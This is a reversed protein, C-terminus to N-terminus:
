KGNLVTEVKRLNSASIVIQSDCGCICKSATGYLYNLNVGAKSLKLAVETLAGPRNELPLVVVTQVTYPIGARTLTSKAATSNSVIVQVLGVDTSESVSIGEINVKALSLIKTVKALAGPKNELYLTYQKKLM